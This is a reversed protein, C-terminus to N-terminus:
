RELDRPPPPLAKRGSLRAGDSESTLAFFRRELDPRLEEQYRELWDVAESLVQAYAPNMQLRRMTEVESYHYRFRRLVSRVYARTDEDLWFKEREYLEEVEVLHAELAARREKTAYGAFPDLWGSFSREVRALGASIEPVARMRAKRSELEASYRRWLTQGIVVGCVTLLAGFLPIFLALEAGTM